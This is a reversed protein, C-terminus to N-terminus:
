AEGGLWGTSDFDPAAGQKIPFKRVNGSQCGQSTQYARDRAFWKVLLSVWGEQTELRQQPKYHCIFPAIAEETFLQLKLGARFAYAKLLDPCPTWDLSMEVPSNPDIPADGNPSAKIDVDVDEKPLANSVSKANGKANGSKHNAVRKATLLRNKATKGNHRDFRPLSIVGDVEVMWGVFKMHECFDNVGVLRNLLKKSVSPANGEETQQDFWGWVRMLKGVVADLDIDALEAIQCVEPKDLTTLEFKIWDGAM